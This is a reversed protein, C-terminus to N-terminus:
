ERATFGLGPNLYDRVQKPYSPSLKDDTKFIYRDVLMDIFLDKRSSEM